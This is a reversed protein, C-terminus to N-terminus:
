NQVNHLHINHILQTSILAPACLQRAALKTNNESEAGWHPYLTSWRLLNDKFGHNKIKLLIVSLLYKRLITVQLMNHRIGCVQLPFFLM